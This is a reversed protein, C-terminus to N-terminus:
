HTMGDVAAAAEVNLATDTNASYVNVKSNCSIPPQPQVCGAISLQYNNFGTCGACNVSTASPPPFDAPDGPYYAWVAPAPAGGCNNTCNAGLKTGGMPTVWGLLTTDVIAGSAPNFIQGGAAPSMNPLLWPKVCPPAVPLGPGNGTGQLSSPNYAEATASAKVSAATRGWIRAFFTPLDTRQVTVSVQPNAVFNLA